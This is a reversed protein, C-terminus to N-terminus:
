CWSFPKEFLFIWHQPVCEATIARRHLILAIEKLEDSDRDNLDFNSLLPPISIVLHFLLFPSGRLYAHLVRAAFCAVFLSYIGLLVLHVNGCTVHQGGFLGILNDSHFLGM